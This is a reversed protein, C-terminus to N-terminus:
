TNYVKLLHKLTEALHKTTTMRSYNSLDSFGAPVQLQRSARFENLLFCLYQEIEEVKEPRFCPVGALTLRQWLTGVELVALVPKKMYFYEYLKTTSSHIDVTGGLLLAVHSRSLAKLGEHYSVRESARVMHAICMDEALTGFDSCGTGFLQLCLEESQVKGTKMLSSIARMISIPSRGGYINGLYTITMPPSREPKPLNEFDEPDFGNPLTIFKEKREHFFRKRHAETYQENVNVLRHCAKVCSREWRKFLWNQLQTPYNKVHM